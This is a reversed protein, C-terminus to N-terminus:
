FNCWFPAGPCPRDAGIGIMMDEVRRADIIGASLDQRAFIYFRRRAVVAAQIAAHNSDHAIPFAPGRKDMCEEAGVMLM